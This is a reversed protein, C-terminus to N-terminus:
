NMLTAITDYEQLILMRTKCFNQSLESIINMIMKCKCKQVILSAFIIEQKTTAFSHFCEIKYYPNAQKQTLYIQIALKEFRFEFLNICFSLAVFLFIVPADSTM